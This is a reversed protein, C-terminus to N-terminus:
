VHPAAEEGQSTASFHKCKRLLYAINGLTGLLEDYDAKPVIAHTASIANLFALSIKRSHPGSHNVVTNGYVERAIRDVLAEDLEADKVEAKAEDEGQSVPTIVFDREMTAVFHQLIHKAGEHNDEPIIQPATKEILQQIKPEALAPRSM